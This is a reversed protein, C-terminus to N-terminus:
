TDCNRAIYDRAEALFELRKEDDLRSISGDENEVMVRPSPELNAIRQRAQECARATVARKEALEQRRAAREDRRQQAYSPEPEAKPEAEPTAVQEVGVGSQVDIEVAEKHDGPQQDFHVVGNEDVWRYVEGEAQAEMATLLLTTWLLSFTITAKLM